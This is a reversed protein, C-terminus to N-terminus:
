RLETAVMSSKAPAGAQVSQGEKLVSTPHRIVKDGEAVGATLVYDGTRADREAVTLPVKQLKNDKVRWASSKDGDRVVATAPM